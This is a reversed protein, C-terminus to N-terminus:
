MYDKFGEIPKDFDPSMIIEGKACGFVPKKKKLQKKRKALLFDVFDNVESKLESPLASIKTYLQVLEM